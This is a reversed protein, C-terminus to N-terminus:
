WSGGVRKTMHTIHEQAGTLEDGDSEAESYPGSYWKRLRQDGPRRGTLRKALFM